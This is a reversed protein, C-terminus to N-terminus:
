GTRLLPTEKGEIEYAQERFGERMEDRTWPPPCHCRSCWPEETVCTLTNASSVVM